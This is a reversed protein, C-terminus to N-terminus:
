LLAMLFRQLTWGSDLGHTPILAKITVCCPPRNRQLHNSFHIMTKPSHDGPSPSHPPLAPPHHFFSRFFTTGVIRSSSTVECVRIKLRLTCTLSAVVSSYPLLSFVACHGAWAYSNSGQNHCLTTAPEKRFPKLLQDHPARRFHPHPPPPVFSFSTTEVLRSSCGVEGDRM